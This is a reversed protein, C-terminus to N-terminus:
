QLSSVVPLLHLPSSLSESKRAEVKEAERAQLFGLAKLWTFIRGGNPARVFLTILGTLRLPAVGGTHSDTTRSSNGQKSQHFSIHLLLGHLFLLQEWRLRVAPSAIAQHTGSEVRQPM